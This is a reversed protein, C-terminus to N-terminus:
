TVLFVGAMILLATRLHAAFTDIADDVERHYFYNIPELAKGIEGTEEGTHFANIVFSPFAQTREVSNSLSHGQHLYSAIRAFSERLPRIKVVKEADRLSEEIGMGANYMVSFFYLFRATDLKILIKGLVPLALFLRDLLYAFTEVNRYLFICSYIILAPGFLIYHWGYIVFSGFIMHLIETFETPLTYKQYLIFYIIHIFFMWIVGTTFCASILPYRVVKIFRRRLDYMWRMHTSLADLVDALHGSKEGIGILGLFFGNFLKPYHSLAEVLGKNHKNIDDRVGTLAGRISMSPTSHRISDLAEVLPICARLALSLEACMLSIDQLSAKGSPSGHPEAKESFSRLELGVHKLHEDLENENNADFEGRIKNGVENIAIFKYTQM